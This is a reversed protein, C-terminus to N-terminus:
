EYNFGVDLMVPRREAGAFAVNEHHIDSLSFNLDSHGRLITQLFKNDKFMEIIEKRSAQLYDLKTNYFNLRKRYASIDDATNQDKNSASLKDLDAEIEEIEEDIGAKIKDLDLNKLVETIIYRFDRFEIDEEKREKDYEHQNYAGLKRSKFYLNFLDVKRLWEHADAQNRIPTVRDCIIWRQNFSGVAYIRPVFEGLLGSRIIKIEQKNQEWKPSNNSQFKLVLEKNIAYVIRSVGEGLYTLNLERFAENYLDNISTDSKIDQAEKDVAQLRAIIASVDSGLAAFPSRKKVPKLDARTKTKTIFYEQLIQQRIISKLSKINM